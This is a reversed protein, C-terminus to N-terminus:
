LVGRESAHLKAQSEYIERYVGNEKLLMDHTGEGVLKGDDLVLISDANQISSIRQSVIIVTTNKTYKRLDERLKAETLYDLASGSDDLILIEPKRVLARAISVRQRQGGSLNKGGQEIHMDLGQAHNKIITSAQTVELAQLMEEETANEKGWKLNDRLTGKCLVAHQPAIGIRKRLEKSSIDQVDIGNIYVQGESADYFKPILNILTSKGAGTGGIIGVTSGKPVSFNVEELQAESTGEYRFSVREFVIGKEEKQMTETEQTQEDKLPMDLVRELRKASAIARTVAITLNALVVIVLLIQMLYNVLAVVQGQTLVGTEVSPGVIYLLFIIAVNMLMYTVPNMLASIRGAMIQLRTYKQNSEEFEQVEDAQRDFARVVRAGTHNERILLALADLREQAKKYSHVTKKIIVSVIGIILLTVIVFVFTIGRDVRFAMITAGIVIFPARLFLRLFLNVGTQVIYIDSSMYNVLAATGVKDLQSFSMSQIKRFMESRLTTGVGMAAKASFYQAVTAVLFGICTFCMLLLCMKWIHRENRQHIGIDILSAVVLPVLLEFIAELMKFLPALITELMYNKLYKIVNRM